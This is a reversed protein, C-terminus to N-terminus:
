SQTNQVGKQVLLLKFSILKTLWSDWQFILILNISKCCICSYGSLYSKLTILASFPKTQPKPNTQNKERVIQTYSLCFEKLFIGEKVPSNYLCTIEISEYISNLCQLDDESRKSLYPRAMKYISQQPMCFHSSWLQM